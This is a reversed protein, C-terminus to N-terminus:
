GVRAITQSHRLALVEVVFLELSDGDFALSILLHLLHYHLAHTSEEFCEPIREVLNELLGRQVLM